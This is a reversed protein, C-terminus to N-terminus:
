IVGSCDLVFLLLLIFAFLCGTYAKWGKEKKAEEYEELRSKRIRRSPHGCDSVDTEEHVDEIAMAALFDTFDHMLIYKISRTIIIKM